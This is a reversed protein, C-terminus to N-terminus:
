KTYNTEENQRDEQEWRRELHRVKSTKIWGLIGCEGALAGFVCTCLTDPISGYRVFLVIMTLTFVVLLISVFILIKNSTRM